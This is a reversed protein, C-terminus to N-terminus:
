FTVEGDHSVLSVSEVGELASMEQVLEYEEKVRVEFILNCKRSTVNRSKVKCYKAYKNIVKRIEPEQNVGALNLILIM